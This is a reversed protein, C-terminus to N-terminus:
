APFILQAVSALRITCELQDEKHESWAVICAHRPASDDGLVDLTLERIRAAALDARALVPGRTPAVHVAGIERIEQVSCRSTRFVSTELRSLGAYWVPEFAQRKVRGDGPSFQRRSTLFRTVTEDDSVAPPVDPQLKSSQM